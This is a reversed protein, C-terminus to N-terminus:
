LFRIYVLLIDFFAFLVIHNHLAVNKFSMGAGGLTSEESLM